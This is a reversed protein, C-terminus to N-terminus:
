RASPRFFSQRDKQRDRREVHTRARKDWHGNYMRCRQVADRIRDANRRVGHIEITGGSLSGFSRTRISEYIGPMSQKKVREALQLRIDDADAGAETLLNAAFCDVEDLM